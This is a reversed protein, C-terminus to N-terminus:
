AGAPPASGSAPSGTSTSAHAPQAHHAPTNSEFTSTSKEVDEPRRAVPGLLRRTEVNWLSRAMLMAGALTAAVAVPVSRRAGWAILAAGGAGATLRATPSWNTHIYAARPRRHVGEGQLGPISGAHEHTTLRNEIHRVGRVHAVAALVAPAEGTLVPGDLLVTGDYALVGIAGPHSAARGIASRVRAVLVQDPIEGEPTARARLRAKLGRARHEADRVTVAAAHALTHASHIMRERFVARRRRGRAPDLVFMAGAGLGAACMWAARSSQM